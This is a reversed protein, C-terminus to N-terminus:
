DARLSEMPDVAAARRAPVYCAALAVLVLAVAVFAFTAPDSPSIGFVLDRMLRTLALAGAGGIAVGALTLALGNRLVMRLVDGAQAGLAMRVGIERRRLVVTYSLVGYLGVAALVLALAAMGGFLVTDFRRQETTEHLHEALTKVDQVPQDKDISEVVATLAATLAKPDGKTRAMVTIASLERTPAFIEPRAPEELGLEHSDPVVGVITWRQNDGFIIARGLPDANAFIRRVFAENAIVVKAETEAEQRTFGRGRLIPSGAARFYNESVEKVDTELPAEASQGEVHFTRVSLSDAMPLGTSISAAEVPGLAGLRDLLQNCFAKVQGPKGNYRSEPLRIHAALVHDPDFGPAVGMVAGLSRIMLGAGALLVVSAAVEAVILASRWRRAGRPAIGGRLNEATGSFAPVLGFVLGSLVAVGAEFALVTWDLGIEHFHYNDAPAFASIGQMAAVALLLGAAGGLISLLLSEALTQRVLRGRSAGLAMRIAFERGRGAARALLLNAVNACAILLVFGVGVQLALVTRVTSANVDEVRIPWVSTTFGKNDDPFQAELRKATAVLESRAQDLSVGDRLRGFVEYTREFPQSDKPLLLWVDATDRDMGEFTAPLHFDAPLVGAVPYSKNAVRIARGIAAPDGGFRKQWYSHSLVAGAEVGRGIAPQRGFLAFFGPTVWECGLQEPRDGARVEANEFRKIEMGSFSTSQRKWEEFNGRAVPMREALIGTFVPNKEWIMVLRDPRDYPLPKILVARVVSFIATNAGVGLATALIAAAILTPTRRFSRLAFRLDSLM